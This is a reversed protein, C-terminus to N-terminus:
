IAFYAFFLAIMLLSVLIGITLILITGWLEIFLASIFGALVFGYGVMTVLFFMLICFGVAIVLVGILWDLFRKM